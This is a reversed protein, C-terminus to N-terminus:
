FKARDAKGAHNRVSEYGTLHQRGATTLLPSTDGPGPRKGNGAPSGQAAVIIGAVLATVLVAAAIAGAVIM